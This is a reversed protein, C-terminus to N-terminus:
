AAYDLRRVVHALHAVHVLHALYVQRWILWIRDWV